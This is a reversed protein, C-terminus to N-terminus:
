RCDRFTKCIKVRKINENGLRVPPDDIIKNLRQILALIMYETKKKSFTLKNCLLWQHVKELNKNPNEELEKTTRGTTTLNNDDAFMSPTANDLCNPLDNM